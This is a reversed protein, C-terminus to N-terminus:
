VSLGEDDIDDDFELGLQQIKVANIKYTVHSLASSTYRPFVISLAVLPTNGLNELVRANSSSKIPEILYIILIPRSRVIAYYERMSTSTTPDQQKLAQAQAKEKDTLGLTISNGSGVKRRSSVQLWNFRGNKDEIIIQRQSKRIAPLENLFHINEGEGSALAVDWMALNPIRNDAIFNSIGNDIFAENRKHVHLQKMYDSILNPYISTWVIGSQTANEIRQTTSTMLSRIFRQTIQLNSQQENLNQSLYPTEVSRGSFDIAVDVDEAYRMKNRATILLLDPHTRVRLGFDIPRAGADYMIRLDQRLETVVSAVHAFHSETTEPMWIRCLHQYGERYGFWRGMQLLTDYQLSQRHFYSTSLGELTIGRSIANGGIVIVRYGKPNNKYAAYDLARTSQSHVTVTEISSTSEHLHELLKEWTVNHKDSNKFETDFIHKLQSIRPHNLASPTKSYNTIDQQLSYVYTNVLASIMDQVAIFRSVNILMSRHGAFGTTLDRVTTTIFFAQIADILSQPLQPLTHNKKHKLPLLEEAEDTYRVLRSEGDILTNASVYNSPPNLSYIFDKPFLDDGLTDSYEYPSIFINAFPTATFGVYTSQNFQAIIRRIQKNIETPNENSDRVNISANDAEDDIILIPENIPTTHNRSIWNNFNDLIAKNKKLVVLLPTNLGTLSLRLRQALDSSFDRSASTLVVPMVSKDILGVGISVAKKEVTLFQSSDVGVFGADLREQTQKRLAEITGALIIILKYGSDAAKCALGIYNSTKGSQVDGMVLGSRKWTVDKKSPNGFLDMMHTTNQDLIQIVNAPLGQNELLTRYRKWYPSDSSQRNQSYWPSYDKDDVITIGLNMSVSLREMVTKSAFKFEEDSLHSFAPRLTDIADDIDQTTRNSRNELMQIAFSILLTVNSNLKM